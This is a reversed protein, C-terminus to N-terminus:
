VSFGQRLVIVVFLYFFGLGLMNIHECFFALSIKCARARASDRLWLLLFFLIIMDLEEEEIFTSLVSLIGAAFGCSMRRHAGLPWFLAGSCQDEEQTCGSALLSRWLM